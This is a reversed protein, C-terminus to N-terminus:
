SRVQKSREQLRDKVASLLWEPTSTAGCIGISSIGELEIADSESPNSIFHINDIVQRCINFLAKGNSSEKGSVFFVLDYRAVFEKLHNERSSVQACVTNFVHLDKRPDMGLSKMRDRLSDQFNSFEMLNMTTQSFLYVTSKISLTSLEQPNRVVIANGDTQGVLARVEPHSSKGFILINGEGGKITSYCDRIQKQLKKVIPCTADILRINRNAAKHFTEPPEGHARILVTANELEEFDDYSISNLGFEKLRRVEEPNHVLDGLSHLTNKTELNEEAKKVAKIVGTCFGSKEDVDIRIM